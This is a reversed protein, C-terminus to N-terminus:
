REARRALGGVSARRFADALCDVEFMVPLGEPDRYVRDSLASREADDLLAWLRGAKDLVDAIQRAKNKIKRSM